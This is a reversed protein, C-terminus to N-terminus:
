KEGRLMAIVADAQKELEPQAEYMGQSTLGLAEGLVGAVRDRFADNLEIVDGPLAKIGVCKVPDHHLHGHTRISVGRTVRFRKGAKVRVLVDAM